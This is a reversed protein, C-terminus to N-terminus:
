PTWTGKRYVLKFPQTPNAATTPDDDEQGYMYFLHVVIDPAYFDDYECWVSPYSAQETTSNAAQNGAFSIWAAPDDPDDSCAAAGIQRSDYGTITGQEWVVGIPGAAPHPRCAHLNPFNTPYRVNGVAYASGVVQPGYWVLATDTRGGGGLPGPASSVSPGATTSGPNDPAQAWVVDISAGENTATRGSIHTYAVVFTGDEQACVCPDRASDTGTISVVGGPAYRFGNAALDSDRVAHGLIRSTATSGGNDQLEYVVCFWVTSTANPEPYRSLSWPNYGARSWELGPPQLIGGREAVVSGPGGREAVPLERWRAGPARGPTTQRVHDVSPFDVDETAGNESVRTPASWAGDSLDFASAYIASTGSTTEEVRFVLLISAEDTVTLAPVSWTRDASLDTGDDAIRPIPEAVWGNRSRFVSIVARATNVAFALETGNPAVGLCPRAGKVAAASTVTSWSSGDFRVLQVAFSTDVYVAHPAGEWVAGWRASNFPLGINGSGPAYIDTTVLWTIASNLYSPPLTGSPREVLRGGKGPLQNGYVGRWGGGPGTERLVRSGEAKGAAIARMGVRAPHDSPLARWWDGNM